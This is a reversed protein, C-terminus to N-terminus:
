NLLRQFLDRLRDFNENQPAELPVPIQGNDMPLEDCGRYEPRHSSSIFPIWVGGCHAETLYGSVPDGLAWEVDDPHLPQLSHTDLHAFLDAFLRLAGSSGTLGTPQYDDRGVWSVAVHEGSFGAFWSDRLDNTTGTKGAVKMDQPLLYQLARGTGNVTVEHLITTLLFDANAPVVQEVELSYRQLTDGKQDMVSLISRLPTRYGEAAITQYMQLVDIPTLEAAGLFLSPYPKLESSVGLKKLTEIVSNVGVEQGLRVAAM